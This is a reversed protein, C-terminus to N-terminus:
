FLTEEIFERIENLTKLRAEIWPFHGCGECVVLRSADIGNRMKEASEVRCARDEAGAIILTRAKVDGLRRVMEGSEEYVRDSGYVGEYCWVSMVHGGIASLLVPVYEAPNSFYLPWMANVSATFASDSSKDLKLQTKNSSRPDHNPTKLINTNTETRNYIHEKSHQQNDGDTHRQRQENKNQNNNDNNDNAYGNEYQNENGVRREWHVDKEEDQDTDDNEDQGGKKEEEEEEEEKARISKFGILQGGVLVLREVREPYMEAYALAIAGGNSHGLLTPIKELNLHIRLDELDTALEFSSMATQSTPRTSRGTGRPHHFLLIYPKPKPNSPSPSPTLLGNLDHQLYSSGLGWAPPHIIILNHNNYHHHDHSIPQPANTHIIYEFTLNKSASHFTHPGPTLPHPPPPPPM